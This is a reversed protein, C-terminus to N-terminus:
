SYPPIRLPADTLETIHNVSKVARKVWSKASGGEDIM